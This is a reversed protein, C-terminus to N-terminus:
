IELNGTTIFDRIVKAAYATDKFPHITDDNEPGLGNFKVYLLNPDRCVKHGPYGRFVEASVHRNGLYAEYRLGIGLGAGHAPIREGEYQKGNQGRIKLM